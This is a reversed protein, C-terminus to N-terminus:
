QGQLEGDFATEQRSLRPSHLRSSRRKKPLYRNHSMEPSHSGDRNHSNLQHFSSQESSLSAGNPFQTRPLKGTDNVPDLRGALPLLTASDRHLLEDRHLSNGRRSSLPQPISNGGRKSHRGTGSDIVEKHLRESTRHVNNRPYDRYYKPKFLGGLTSRGPGHTEIDLLQPLPQIDFDEEVSVLPCTLPMLSWAHWLYLPSWPDDTWSTLSSLLCWPTCLSWCGPGDGFLIIIIFPRRCTHKELVWTWQDFTVGLLM